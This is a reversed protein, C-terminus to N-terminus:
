AKMISLTSAVGKLMDFEGNWGLDYLAGADLCSNNMMNFAGRESDSPNEFIIKRGSAEGIAEALQRISVNSNRNAINYPYCVEGNILVTMIASVCDVVYCYSRLQSGASKMVIDNGAIVDRFFQSSARKDGLTATPGYIHGPRVILVNIGYESAYSKCLTEAARKASPYSARDGLIDLYGYEDISYPKNNEKQGYVESSSIYLIRKVHKKVGYELLKQLGMLNCLMTEVPKTVYLEPSALSAAHIIYDFEYDFSIEELANYEICRVDSRNLIDGFRHHAEEISLTGVYVVNSVAMTDNLNLLFDVICSGILGTAGTIFIRANNLKTLNPINKQVSSLDSFYESIYNM